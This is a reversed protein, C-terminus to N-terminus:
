LYPALAKLTSELPAPDSAATRAAEGAAKAAEPSELWYALERALTQADRTISIARAKQLREVAGRVNDLNPGVVIPIGVLAPELVNHGGIPILTGGVFAVDAAAYLTPLVGLRDVVIASAPSAHLGVDLDHWHALPIGRATFVESVETAREPYRPAVILVCDPIRARLEAYADALIQAEGERVSGAVWVKLGVLSAQRLKRGAALVASPVVAADKLNGAVEGREVPLGLAVYRELDERTQALVRTLAALMAHSTAPVRVLRSATKATLRASALVVPLGRQQACALLNPWLETEVLVGARPNVRTLYRRWAGPLDLPALEARVNPLFETARARGSATLVTMRVPYRRSLADALPTSAQVEGTSAAHIWIPRRSDPEAFGFRQRWDDREGTQRRTRRALYFLLAPASLRVAM